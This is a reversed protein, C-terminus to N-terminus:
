QTGDDDGKCEAAYRDLLDCIAGSITQNTSECFEDLLDKYDLPIDLRIGVLGAEKKRHRFAKM